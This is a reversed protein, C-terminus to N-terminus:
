PRSRHTTSSGITVYNLDPTGTRYATLSAVEGGPLLVNLCRAEGLPLDRWDLDILEAM